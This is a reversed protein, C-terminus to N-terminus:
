TNSPVKYGYIGTQKPEHYGPKKYCPKFEFGVIPTTRQM